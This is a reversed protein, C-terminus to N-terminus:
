RWGPAPIGVVHGKAVAVYGADELQVAYRSLLPEGIQVTDRFVSEVEDAPVALAAM